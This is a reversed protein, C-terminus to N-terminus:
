SRADVLARPTGDDGERAQNILAARFEVFQLGRSALLYNTNSEQRLEAMLQKLEAVEEPAPAVSLEELERSMQQQRELLRHVMHNSQELRAADGSLLHARQAKMAELLRTFLRRQRDVFSAPSAM